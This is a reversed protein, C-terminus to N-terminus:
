DGILRNTVETSTEDEDNNECKDLINRNKNASHQPSKFWNSSLDYKYQSWVKDLRNKFANLTPATVVDDPLSNWANVIRISFFNERVSTKVSPKKLKLSHGRTRTSDARPLLVGSVNYIGSIHKYCEIMYGRARRYYLSPLKLSKLRQVYDLNKLDPILKSMRRQVSELLQEEDGKHRPHWVVNGYEM